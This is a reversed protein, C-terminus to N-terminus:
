LESDQSHEGTKKVQRKQVIREQSLEWAMGCPLNGKATKWLSNVGKGRQGFVLWREPTIFQPTDYHLMIRCAACLVDSDCM